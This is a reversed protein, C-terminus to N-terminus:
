PRALASPTQRTACFPCSYEREPTQFDSLSLGSGCVPCYYDGTPADEFPDEPFMTPSLAM